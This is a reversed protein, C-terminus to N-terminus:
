NQPACVSDCGGEALGNATSLTLLHAANHVRKLASKSLDAEATLDHGSGTGVVWCIPSTTVRRAAVAPSAARKSERVPSAAPSRVHVAPM